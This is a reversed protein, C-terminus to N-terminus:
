NIRRLEVRRNMARGQATRNNAIPEDPGYGRAVLRDAPVGRLVLYARVAEARALSLRLNGTRTGTADTHGAIELRLGPAAILQDALEDLVAYSSSTLADRGSAFTVGRLTVAREV